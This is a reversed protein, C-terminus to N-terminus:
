LPLGEIHTQVKEVVDSQPAKAAFQISCVPIWFIFTLVLLEPGRELNQIARGDGDREDGFRVGPAPENGNRIATFSTVTAQNM